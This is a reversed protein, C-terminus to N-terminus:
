TARQGQAGTLSGDGSTIELAQGELGRDLDRPGSAQGGGGAAPRDPQQDHGGDPRIRLGLLEVVVRQGRRQHPADGLMQVPMADDSGGNLHSSGIVLADRHSGQNVFRVGPREGQDPLSRDVLQGTVDVREGAARVARAPEEVDVQVGGGNGLQQLGHFAHVPDVLHLQVLEVQARPLADPGAAIDDAQVPMRQEQRAVVPDDHSSGPRGISRDVGASRRRRLSRAPAAVRAAPGIVAGPGSGPGPSRAEGSGPAGGASAGLVATATDAWWGTTPTAPTPIGTRRPMRTLRGARCGRHSTSWSGTPMACCSKKTRNTPMKWSSADVRSSSASMTSCTASTVTVGTGISSASAPQIPTSETSADSGTSRCRSMTREDARESARRPVASPSRSNTCISDPPGAVISSPPPIQRSPSAGFSTAQTRM